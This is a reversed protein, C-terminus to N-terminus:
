SEVVILYPNNIQHVVEIQNGVRLAYLHSKKYTDVRHLDGGKVQVTISPSFYQNPHKIEVVTAKM